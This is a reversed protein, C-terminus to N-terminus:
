ALFLLQLFLRQRWIPDSAAVYYLQLRRPHIYTDLVEGEIGVEVWGRLM